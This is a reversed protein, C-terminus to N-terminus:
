ERAAPTRASGLAEIRRALEEGLAHGEGAHQTVQRRAELLIQEAEDFRGLAALCDALQRDATIVTSHHGPLEAHLLGAAERLLPEAAAYDGSDLLTGGLVGCASGVTPHTAPLRRRALALASAAERAAEDLQGLARRVQAVRVHFSAFSPHEEGSARRALERADEALALADDHEERASHCRSLNLMSRAVTPHDPGVAARRMELAETYTDLAEDLRQTAALVAALNELANATNEHTGLHARDIDIARRFLPEAEEFRGLDELANALASLASAIQPHASGFLEERISLSRRLLPEAESLRGLRVLIAARNNVAYALEIHKEGRTRAMLELAEGLVRESEELRGSQLLFVGYNNLGAALEKDGDPVSRLVPLALDFLAEAEDMRNLDALVTGLEGRTIALEEAAAPGGPELLEIAERFLEASEAYRGQGHRVTALDSLSEAVGRDDRPQRTRRLELSGGLCRDAADFEMLQMYGKGITHLLDAAVDPEDALDRDIRKEAESLVDSMTVTPGKAQSPDFWEIIGRLYENMKQSRGVATLAKETEEGALKSAARARVLGLSTGAVAVVLLVFAAGIGGVLARNRRAFKRIQYMASPPHATIPENRLFRRLDAALEAASQYRRTRDKELAKGILTDIEGRFARDLSSLPVPDREAIARLTEPVSKYSDHYPLRGSLVQYGIVGLAYVDSRTDVEAPDLAVQEPSMYALTGVIQGVDTRFTTAQVDSDLARAVGFDLIKPQIPEQGVDILVNGPKLDRHIVGKQHAHEVADCIRALLSLRARLTPRHEDVYAMLTPGSVLEMAFYPQAGGEGPHTGAEFIQAIGPHRLRGLLHTEHAFRRQLEPTIVGPRIMKLAVRRRPLSQEAEFVTGMGGEGLWRVIRYSGIERGVLPHEAPGERGVLSAALQRVADDVTGIRREDEALARDQLLLREIDARLRVDEGCVDRLYRERRDPPLGRATLFHAAARQFRERESM